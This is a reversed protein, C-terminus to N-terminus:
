PAPVVVEVRAEALARAMDAPPPADSVLYDVGGLEAVQAFMRRGFKSSDVLMAVETARDMMERMMAAESLNSGSYGGELSAAGVAILALDCQVDVEGGTLGSRFVVPGVTTQSSHRVTGGFLCLDRVAAPNLESSLLLNNTAVTLDRHDRLARGVALVTTGGNLMVASGDAVLGAALEGIVDKASAQMRRRVDVATEIRPVASPSMAGGHTRIVVGETGLQDLDRRITDLSVQFHKALQTVSVQGHETVYSALEVKRGAPIRRPGQPSEVANAASM